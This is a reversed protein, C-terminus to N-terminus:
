IEHLLTQEYDAVRKSLREFDERGGVRREAAVILLALAAQLRGGRSLMLTERRMAREQLDMLTIITDGVTVNDGAVSVRDDAVLLNYDTEAIETTGDRSRLRRKADEYTDSRTIPAERTYSVLRDAVAKADIPGDAINISVELDGITLVLASDHASVKDLLVSDLGIPLLGPWAIVLLPGDVGVHSRPLLLTKEDFPM